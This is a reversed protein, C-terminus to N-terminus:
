TPVGLFQALEGTVEDEMPDPLDALCYILSDAKDPSRGLRARIAEKPEVMLLGDSRPKARVAALEAILEPDDPISLVGGEKYQRLFVARAHWWMEARLNAYGDPQWLPKGASEVGVAPVGLEVMRWYTGAGVGIKDVHIPGREGTLGTVEGCLTIPDLGAIVHQPLVLGGRRETLVDRDGGFEAVDLGFKIPKGAKVGSEEVASMIWEMPIISREGGPAFEGCVKTLWMVPDDQEWERRDDIWEPTVVQIYSALAGDWEAGKRPKGYRFLDKNRYQAEEPYAEVPVFPSDFASLRICHWKDSKERHHTRFATGAEAGDTTSIELIRAFGGTMSGDVASYLWTPLGKAEDLVWLISPAHHGEVNTQQQTSFGYAFWGDEIEVKTTICRGSLGPNRAYLTNIEKWLLKEVQRHTPATTVVVSYPHTELFIVTALAASFTKSVGHAARVSTRKYRWVSDIIARMGSWWIVGPLYLRAFAFPNKSLAKGMRLALKDTSETEAM